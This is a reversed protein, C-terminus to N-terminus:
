QLCKIATQFIKWIKRKVRIISFCTKRERMLFYSLINEFTSEVENVGSFMVLNSITNNLFIVTTHLLRSNSVISDMSFSMYYNFNLKYATKCSM